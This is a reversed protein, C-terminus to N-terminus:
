SRSPARCFHHSHGQPLSERRPLAARPPRVEHHESNKLPEPNEEPSGVSDCGGWPLLVVESM